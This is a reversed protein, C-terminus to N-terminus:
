KTTTGKKDKEETAKPLQHPHDHGQGGWYPSVGCGQMGWGPYGGWMPMPMAMAPYMPYQPPCYGQDHCGGFTKFNVGIGVGIGFGVGGNARAQSEGCAVFGVALVAAILLRKM